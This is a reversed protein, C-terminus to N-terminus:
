SLNLDQLAKKIKSKLVETASVLPLRVIDNCLKMQSLVAKIGAPNNEEFILNIIPMLKTELDKAAQRENKLGLHIMKSFDKVLAQGIVSIVGAGGKLVVDLVLDDDGSIILFDKPKNELLTFYQQLNNGAEKVAVINNINRALRLTTEPEMNKSTRGPVNYLIIPISSADAVAKFHQYLGEQTPKNYYPSVSLVATFPTLDTNKLERVVEKTNNGGIGIVLPLRGANTKIIKQIIESKEEKTITVSEGTTGSIVLYDTGNQINFEVIKSLAEFDVEGNHKFPTILAVGMGILHNM